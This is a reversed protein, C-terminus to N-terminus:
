IEKGKKHQTRQHKQPQFELKTKHWEKILYRKYVKHNEEFYEQMLFTMSTQM